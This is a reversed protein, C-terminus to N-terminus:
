ESSIAWEPSGSSSTSLMTSSSSSFPTHKSGRGPFIFFSYSFISAFAEIFYKAATAKNKAQTIPRGIWVYDANFEKALRVADKTSVYRVQDDSEVPYREDRIATLIIEKFPYKDRIERVEHGSVVFGDIKDAIREARELAKTKVEALPLEDQTSFLVGYINPILASAPTVGGYKKQALDNCEKFTKVASEVVAPYCYVTLGLINSYGGAPFKIPFITKSEYGATEYLDKIIGEVRNPRVCDSDLLLRFGYEEAKRLVPFLHAEPPISVAHGKLIPGIEGLITANSNLSLTNISVMVKTM